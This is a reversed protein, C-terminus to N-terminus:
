LMGGMEQKIIDLAKSMEIVQIDPGHEGHSILLRKVQEPTMDRMHVRDLWDGTASTVVYAKMGSTKKPEQYIYKIGAPMEEKRVYKHKARTACFMFSKQLECRSAPDLGIFM